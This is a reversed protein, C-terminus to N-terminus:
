EGARNRGEKEYLFEVTANLRDLLSGKEFRVQKAAPRKGAASAKQKALQEDLSEEACILATKGSRNLLARDAGLDVLLRAILFHGKQCALHLSTNKQAQTQENPDQGERILIRVLDLDGDRAARWIIRFGHKTEPNKCVNFAVKNQSNRADRLKPDLDVSWTLLKKCVRPFGNYSAYHLPTWKREDLAYINSSYALLMSVAELSGKKSAM